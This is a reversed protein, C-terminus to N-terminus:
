SPRRFRQALDELVPGVRYGHSQGLEVLEDLHHKWEDFSSFADSAKQSMHAEFEEPSVALIAKARYWGDRAKEVWRGVLKKSLYTKITSESHGSAGAADAVSFPRQERECGKLYELLKKQKSRM